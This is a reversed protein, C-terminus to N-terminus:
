EQGPTRTDNDLRDVLVREAPDAPPEVVVRAPALLPPQNRRLPGASEDQIEEQRCFTGKRASEGGREHTHTHARVRAGGWAM